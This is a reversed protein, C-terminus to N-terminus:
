SWCRFTPAQEMSQIFYVGYRGAREMRRLRLRVYDEKRIGKQAWEMPIDHNRAFAEVWSRYEGTRKGLAEKDVVPILIVDRFFYVV